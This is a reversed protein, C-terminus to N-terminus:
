AVVRGGDRIEEKSVVALYAINVLLYMVTILIMALPAARKLTKVPDKTESLAYHANSYGNFSRSEKLSPGPQALV